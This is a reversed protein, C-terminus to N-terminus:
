RERSKHKRHSAMARSERTAALMHDLHAALTPGPTDKAVALLLRLCESHVKRRLPPLAPIRAPPPPPPPLAAALLTCPARRRVAAPGAARPARACFGHQM